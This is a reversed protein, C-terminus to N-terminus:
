PNYVIATIDIRKLLEYEMDSFDVGWETFCKYTVNIMYVHDNGLDKETEASVKPDQYEIGAKRMPTRLIKLYFLLLDVVQERDLTTMAGVTITVDFWFRGLYRDGIRHGDDDNIEELFEDDLTLEHTGSSCSVFIAPYKLIKRPFGKYITILTTPDAFGDPGTIFRFQEGVKRTKFAERIGHVFANKIANVFTYSYVYKQTM